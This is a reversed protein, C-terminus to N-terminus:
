DPVLDRRRRFYEDTAWPHQFCETWDFQIMPTPSAMSSGTLLPYYRSFCHYVADLAADLDRFATFWPAEELPPTRHALLRNAIELAHDLKTQLDKRDRRATTPSIHDDAPVSGKEIELRDFFHNALDDKAWDQITTDDFISRYRKRTLVTPRSEIESLLHLLNITGNQTDFERRIFMLADHAYLRSLWNLFLRGSVTQIAPNTAMMAKLHLLVRRNHFVDILESATRTIWEAWSAHLEDDPMASINRQAM